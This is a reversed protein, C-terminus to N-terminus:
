RFPRTNKNIETNKLMNMGGLFNMMNEAALKRGVVEAHVADSSQDTNITTIDMLPEIYIKIREEVLAWKPDDVFAKLEKEKNM